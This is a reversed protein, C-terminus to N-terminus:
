DIERGFTAAQALTSSPSCLAGYSGLWNKESQMKAPKLGELQFERDNPHTIFGRYDAKM